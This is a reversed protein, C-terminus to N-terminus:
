TTESLQLEVIVEGDAPELDGHPVNGPFVWLRLGEHTAVLACQAEAGEPCRPIEGDLTFDSEEVAAVAQEIAEVRAGAVARYWHRIRPCEPSMPNSCDEGPEFSEAKALEWTDPVPFEDLRSELEAVSPDCAALLVVIVVAVVGRGM